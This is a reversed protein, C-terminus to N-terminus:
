KELAAPECKVVMHRADTASVLLLIRLHQRTM